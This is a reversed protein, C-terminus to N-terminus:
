AAQHPSRTADAPPAHMPRIKAPIGVAVSDPPVDHVVVANAGIISRAGVRVPGLVRAGCGVVVDDELVPYGNDKATGITNNGMLCVRNGIRSTGGLVTGLPHVFYVGNGIEVENGIELGFVASQTLRLLRNLGPLRMRRAFTRARWLALVSYSDLLLAGTVTRVSVVGKASVRALDFADLMLERLM